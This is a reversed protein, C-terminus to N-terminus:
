RVPPYKLVTRRGRTTAQKAAGIQWVSGPVLEMSAAWRFVRVVRRIRGNVTNRSLSRGRKKAKEIILARLAHLKRPGFEQAEVSGFGECLPRLSDRIWGRESTERGDKMYRGEREIHTWYAAVVEDVTPARQKQEGKSAAEGLTLFDALLAAYRERSEETGHKGLYHDKGNLRVVAQGSPKHLRYSPTLSRKRPM